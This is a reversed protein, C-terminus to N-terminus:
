SAVRHKATGIAVSTYTSPNETGSDAPPDAKASPFERVNSGRPVHNLGSPVAKGDTTTPKETGDNKSPRWRMFEKTALSDGIPFMTLAWESARRNAVKVCFGGRRQAQIFGRAELDRVYGAVTERDAVEIAASMERQSFGIRGNNGGNHRRIIEWLLARPGPRLTRFAVSDFAWHYLMVFSQQGVSRGKRNTRRGAAM